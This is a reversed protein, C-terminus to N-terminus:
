KKIYSFCEKYIIFIANMIDYLSYLELFIFISIFFNCIYLKLSSITFLGFNIELPNKILPIDFNHGISILILAVLCLFIFKINDSLEKILSEIYSLNKKNLKINNSINCLPTFMFCYAAFSLGFLEASLTINNTFDFIWLSGNFSNFFAILLILTFILIKKYKKM